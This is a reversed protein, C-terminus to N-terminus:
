DKTAGPPPPGPPVAASGGGGGRRGARAPLPLMPDMVPLAHPVDDLAQMVFATTEVQSFFSLHHVRSSDDPVLNGGPGFCGIHAAPILDARGHLRWGGESPVVLDNAGQFFRDVGADALRKWLASSRDPHWNAVLAHWRSTIPAASSEIQEIQRGDQNMSALGPIEEAVVEAIWNLADAAWSVADGIGPFLDGLNAFLTLVEDWRSSTALPTGANPSAVVVANGATFQAAGLRAVQRFVLGGRSHTVVDFSWPGGKPLGALLARANEEPTECMTFHNFAFVRGGYRKAIWNVFEPSKALDGFCSVTNSFTGHILLLCPGAKLEEASLKVPAVGMIKGAFSVRLWGRPREQKKKEWTSTEWKQVLWKATKKAVWKALKVVVIRIVRSFIGRKGRTSGEDEEPLEITFRHRVREAKGWRGSRGRKALVRESAEPLRLQLAGSEEMMVILAVREGAATECDPGSM